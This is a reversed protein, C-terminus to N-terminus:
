VKRFLQLHQSYYIVLRQAFMQFPDPSSSTLGPPPTLPFNENNEGKVIINEKESELKQYCVSFRKNNKKRESNRELTFLDNESSPNRKESGVFGNFEKNKASPPASTIAITSNDECNDDKSNNLRHNKKSSTPVFSNIDLRLLIM